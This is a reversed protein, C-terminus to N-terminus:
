DLLSKIEEMAFTIGHGPESFEQEWRLEREKYRSFSGDQPDIVWIQPIGMLRYDELKQKLRRVTDEPSLVEFVALPPKTAIQEIPQARDLVAVDPVRFRSAAVQVRLEPRVRVNWEKAHLNFWLCMANQWASHDDEGMPREEIHGDVYEADPEFSTRLYVDIPVRTTTALSVELPILIGGSREDAFECFPGSHGLNM